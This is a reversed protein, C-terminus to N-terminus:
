GGVSRYRDVAVATIWVWLAIVAATFILNAAPAGGASAITAFGALFAVGTVRSYGAWRRRGERSYRRAIILAAVAACGFGIAGAVFHLMGHWSVTAVEVSTGVPFGLAPDARFVGSAILSVGYAAVLRPAWRAGVGGALARRLGVAFAVVMLGTVVFNAVHIWGAAGNALLSWQHRGLDFGARTVAQLLSVTVYVPGAIVGYGLLSRTLNDDPNCRAPSRVTRAQRHPAATLHETMAIEEDM